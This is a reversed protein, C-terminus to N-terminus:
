ISSAPPSIVVGSWSVGQIEENEIKEECKGGTRDVLNQLRWECDNIYECARVVILGLCRILCQFFFSVQVAVGIGFTSRCAKTRGAVM